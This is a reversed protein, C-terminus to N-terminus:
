VLWLPKCIGDNWAGGDMHGHVYCEGILTYEDQSETQRLVFPVRAGQLFFIHDGVKAAGPAIGVYGQDTIILRRGFIAMTHALARGSALHKGRLWNGWLSKTFLLYAISNRVLGDQLPLRSAVIMNRLTPKSLELCSHKMLPTLNEYGLLLCEWFVDERPQKTPEYVSTLGAGSLSYWDGITLCYDSTWKGSREDNM